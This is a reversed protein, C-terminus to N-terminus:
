ALAAVHARVGAALGELSYGGELLSVLRGGAHKDAIERMVNTLDTFDADTLM